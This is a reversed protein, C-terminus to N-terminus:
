WHGFCKGIASHNSDILRMRVSFLIICAGVHALRTFSLVECYGKVWTPQASLGCLLNLERVFAGMYDVQISRFSIGLGALWIDLFGALRDLVAYVCLQLESLSCTCLGCLSGM